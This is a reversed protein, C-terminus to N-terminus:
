FVDLESDSVEDIEADIDSENEELIDLMYTKKINKAELYAIIANKKAEKAKNRAQKYLEYYVQNPKKLTITELPNEFYNPLTVEKLENGSEEIEEIELDISEEEKEVELDKEMKLDKEV